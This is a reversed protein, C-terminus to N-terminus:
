EGLRAFHTVMYRRDRGAVVGSPTGAHRGIISTFASQFGGEGAMNEM